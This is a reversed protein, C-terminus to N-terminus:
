QDKRPYRFFEFLLSREMESPRGRFPGRTSQIVLAGTEDSLLVNRIQFNITRGEIMGYSSLKPFEIYGNHCEFDGEDSRFHYEAIETAQYNLFFFYFNSADSQRIVFGNRPVQFADPTLGSRDARHLPIYASFLWSDDKPLYNDSAGQRHITPPELYV